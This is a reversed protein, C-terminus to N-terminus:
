NFIGSKYTWEQINVSEVGYRMADMLHDMGDEPEELIQEDKAKWCYTSLEDFINRTGKVVKLNFKKVRGIGDAVSGKYKDCGVANYHAKKLDAIMEPRSNDCVMKITKSIGLAEFRKILTASTHGSEYLLERIFLDKKEQGIVDVTVGEVLACPDNYGFDLGYFKAEPMESTPTYDPYILGEYAVGWNGLGDVEYRKPDLTKLSELFKITDAPCFPNDWYNVFLTELDGEYLKSEFFDQYIWTLKSIPNFTFHFQTPIGYSNRLSGKIDFFDQRKIQAERTIPEEAWFDTPDAVSRLTDPQEFSGGTLFNGNDNCTIKMVTDAFTFKNKFCDFRNTIDKFLQYQSNRVNKQTDRAFVTRNYETSISKALFYIAKTWSKASGRGGYWIQYPKESNWVTTFADPVCLVNAPATM